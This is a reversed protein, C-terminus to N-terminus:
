CGRWPLARARARSAASRILSVLGRASLVVVTLPVLAIICVLVWMTLKGNEYQDDDM